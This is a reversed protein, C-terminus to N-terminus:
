SKGSRCQPCPCIERLHEFSYIGTTHGDNWLFRLAYRGVPEVGNMKLTRQYMQFPSAPVVPKEGGHGRCGACPCHDRLYQLTYESRHGDKWDIQVGTSLSVEINRPDATLPV